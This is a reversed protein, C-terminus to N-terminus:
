GLNLGTQIQGWFEEEWAPKDTEWLTGYESQMNRFKDDFLQSPTQIAAMLEEEERTADKMERRGEVLKTKDAALGAKGSSLLANIRATAFPDDGAGAFGSAYRKRDAELVEGLLSARTDDGSMRMDSLLREIDSEAGLRRQHADQAGGIIGRIGGVNEGIGLFEELFTGRDATDYGPTDKFYEDAADTYLGTVSQGGPLTADWDITKTEDIATHPDDESHYTFDFVNGGQIHEGFGELSKEAEAVGRGQESDMLSGFSQTRTITDMDRIDKYEDSETWTQPTDGMYTGFERKIADEIETSSKAYLPKTEFSGGTGYAEASTDRKSTTEQAATSDYGAVTDQQTGARARYTPINDVTDGERFSYADGTQWEPVNDQLRRKRKTYGGSGMERIDKQWGGSYTPGLYPKAFTENEASAKDWEKGWDWKNFTKGKETNGMSIAGMPSLAGYQKTNVTNRIKGFTGKYNGGLGEQGYAVGGFNEGYAGYNSFTRQDDLGIGFVSDGYINADDVFDSSDDMEYHRFFKHAPSDIAYGASKRLGPDRWKGATNFYGM